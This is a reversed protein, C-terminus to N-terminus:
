YNKILICIALWIYASLYSPKFTLGLVIIPTWGFYFNNEYSPTKIETHAKKITKPLYKLFPIVQVSGLLLGLGIPIWQWFTLSVPLLYIALPYYGALLIAGISSSSILINHSILGYLMWPFWSLTYVICAQQKLHYAQFTMTIAGILAVLPSCGMGLVSYWGALMFGFHLLYHIIYLNFALDLSLFSGIYATLIGTPYYTSLVPHSHANLWYHPDCRPVNGKRWERGQWIWTPFFTSLTESRSLFWM